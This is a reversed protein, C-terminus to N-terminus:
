VGLRSTPTSSSSAISSASYTRGLRLHQQLLSASATMLGGNAVGGGHAVVTIVPTGGCSSGGSSSGGASSSSGGSGKILPEAVGVEGTIMGNKAAEAAKAAAARRKAASYAFVGAITIAYGAMGKATVANRFLAVSVGAAIVGKM